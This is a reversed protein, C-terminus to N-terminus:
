LKRFLFDSENPVNEKGYFLIDDVLARFRLIRTRHGVRMPKSRESVVRTPMVPFLFFSRV